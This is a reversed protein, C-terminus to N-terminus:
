NLVRLEAFNAVLEKVSQTIGKLSLGSVVKSHVNECSMVRPASLTLMFVVVCRKIAARNREVAVLAHM